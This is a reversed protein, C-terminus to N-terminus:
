QKLFKHTVTGRATQLKYCYMGHPLRQIDIKTNQKGPNATVIREKIVAQGLMDTIIYEAENGAPYNFSVNLENKAPNPYLKVQTQEAFSSTISSPDTTDATFRVKLYPRNAEATDDSSYTYFMICANNCGITTSYLAFGYNPITGSKWLNYMNTINYERTAATDPFSITIPGYFATDFAPRNGYTVDQEYWEQTIAAFYFDATCNSLCYNIQDLHKFGVFVSDVTDPLTTLDFQMFSQMHTQNCNSIPTVEIASSNGYNTTTYTEHVFVDKGGNIGGQDTSDNLGPGPRFIITSDLQASACLSSLLLILMPYFKKKM